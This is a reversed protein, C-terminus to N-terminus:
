SISVTLDDDFTMFLLKHCKTGHDILFKKSMVTVHTQVQDNIDIKVPAICTVKCVFSRCLFFWTFGAIKDVKFCGVATKM